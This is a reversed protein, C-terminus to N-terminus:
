APVPEKGEERKISVAPKIKINIEGNLFKGETRECTLVITQNLKVGFDLVAKPLRIIPQGREESIRMVLGEQLIRERKTHGRGRM